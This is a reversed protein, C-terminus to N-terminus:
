KALVEVMLIQRPEVFIMTWRHKLLEPCCM